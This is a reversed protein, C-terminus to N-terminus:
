APRLLNGFFKSRSASTWRFDASSITVRLGSSTQGWHRMGLGVAVPSAM